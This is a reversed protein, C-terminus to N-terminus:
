EVVLYYRSKRSAKNGINIGYRQTYIPLWSCSNQGKNSIKCVQKQDRDLVTFQLAGKVSASLAINAREGALFIQEIKVNEGPGIWGSRYGIGLARGRVPPLKSLQMAAMQRWQALPDDANGMDDFGSNKSSVGLGDLASVYLALKEMNNQAAAMDAQEFYYAAKAGNAANAIDDHVVAINEVAINDGGFQACGCLSIIGLFPLINPMKM